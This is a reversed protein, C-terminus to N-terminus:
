RERESERENERGKQQNAYREHQVDKRYYRLQAARGGGSREERRGAKISHYQTRNEEEIIPTCVLKRTTALNQWEM